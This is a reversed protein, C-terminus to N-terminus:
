LEKTIKKYQELCDNIKQWALKMNYLMSDAEQAKKANERLYDIKNDIIKSM